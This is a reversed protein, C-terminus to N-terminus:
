FFNNIGTNQSLHLNEFAVMKDLIAQSPVCYKWIKECSLIIARLRMVPVKVEKRKENKQSAIKM